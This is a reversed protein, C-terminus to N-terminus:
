SKGQALENVKKVMWQAFLTQFKEPTLLTIAVELIRSGAPSDVLADLFEFSVDCRGRLFGSHRPVFRAAPVFHACLIIMSLRTM